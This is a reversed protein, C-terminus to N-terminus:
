ARCSPIGLKYLRTPKFKSGMKAGVHLLHWTEAWDGVLFCATQDFFFSHWKPATKYLRRRQGFFRGTQDYFFRLFAFILIRCFYSHIRMKLLFNSLILLIMPIFRGEASLAGRRLRFFDRWDQLDQWFFLISDMGRFNWLLHRPRLRKPTSDQDAQTLVGSAM